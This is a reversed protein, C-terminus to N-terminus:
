TTRLRQILEKINQGHSAFSYLEPKLLEGEIELCRNKTFHKKAKQILREQVVVAKEAPTYPLLIYFGGESIFLGVKDTTRTNKNLLDVMEKMAKGCTFDKTKDHIEEPTKLHLLSSDVGYRVYTYLFDYLLHAFYEQHYFGTESDILGQNKPKSFFRFINKMEFWDIM